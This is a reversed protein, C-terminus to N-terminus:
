ATQNLIAVEFGDPWGRHMVRIADEAILEPAVDEYGEDIPTIMVIACPQGKAAAIQVALRKLEKTWEDVQRDIVRKEDQMM